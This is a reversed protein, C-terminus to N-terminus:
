FSKRTYFIYPNNGTPLSHLLQYKALFLFLNKSQFMKFIM